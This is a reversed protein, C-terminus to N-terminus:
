GPFTSKQYCSFPSPLHLCASAISRDIFHPEAFVLYGVLLIADDAVSEILLPMGVCELDGSSCFM